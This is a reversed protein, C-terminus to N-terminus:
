TVDIPALESWDDHLALGGAAPQSSGGLSLGDTVESERLVPDLCRGSWPVCDILSSPSFSLNM